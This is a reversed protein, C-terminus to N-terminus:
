FLFREPTWNSVTKSQKKHLVINLEYTCLSKPPVQAKWRLAYCTLKQSPLTTLGSAGPVRGGSPGGAGANMELSPGTGSLAVGGAVVDSSPVVSGDSTRPCISSETGPVEGGGPIAVVAEWVLSREAVVLFAGGVEVPIPLVLFQMMSAGLVSTVLLTGPKTGVWRSLLALALPLPIPM